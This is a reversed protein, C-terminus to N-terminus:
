DGPLSYSIITFPSHPLRRSTPSLASDPSLLCFLDSLVAHPNKCVVAQLKRLRSAGQPDALAASFHVIVTLEHSKSCGHHGATARTNLNASLVTALDSKLTYQCPVSTYKLSSYHLAITSLFM